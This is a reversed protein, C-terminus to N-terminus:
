LDYLVSFRRGQGIMEDDPLRELIQESHEVAPNFTKDEITINQKSTDKALKFQKSKPLFYNATKKLANTTDDKVKHIVDSVPKIASVLDNESRVVYENEKNKEGLNAPNLNIIEKANEGILRTIAGSQSHGVLSVNKEGYKNAIKEYLKKARKFRDTNEYQGAIYMANNSWDKFTRETGRFVAVAHNLSSNYFCTIESNSLSNDKKYGDIDENFNVDYSAKIMKQLNVSSIKGGKMHQYAIVLLIDDNIHKTRFIYNKDELAQPDEQRFHIYHPKSADIDNFKYHHKKLWQICQKINFKDKNFLISQIIEVM